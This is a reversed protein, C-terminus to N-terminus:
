GHDNVVVIRSTVDPIITGSWQVRAGPPLPEASNLWTEFDALTLMVPCGEGDFGCCEYYSHQGNQRFLLRGHTACLPWALAIGARDSSM